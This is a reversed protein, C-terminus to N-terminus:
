ARYLLRNGHMGAGENLEFKGFDQGVQGPEGHAFGSGLGAKREGGHLAGSSEGGGLLKHALSQGASSLGAKAHLGKGGKLAHKLKKGLRVAGQVGVAQPGNALHQVGGLNKAIVELGGALRQAPGNQGVRHEGADPGLAQV